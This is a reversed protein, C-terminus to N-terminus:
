YIRERTYKASELADKIPNSCFFPNFQPFHIAEVYYWYPLHPRQGYADKYYDSFGSEVLEDQFADGVGYINGNHEAMWEDKFRRAFRKFWGIFCERDNDKDVPNEGYANVDEMFLDYTWDMACNIM